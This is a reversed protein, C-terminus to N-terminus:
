RLYNGGSSSSVLGGVERGGGEAGAQSLIGTKSKCGSIDELAVM